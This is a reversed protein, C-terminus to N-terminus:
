DLLVVAKGTTRRGQLARHAEPLDEFSWRGGIVPRLRRAAVEGLIGRWRARLEQTLGPVLSLNFGALTRCRSVLSAPHIWGMALFERAARLWRVRRPGAAAAFGYLVLRGDEGLMRWARRTLRGGVSDLVVDLGGWSRAVEEWEGYGAAAEAGLELALRRKGETSAVALVRCGGARAMQLLMTGVGGAAATVLLREGRRARGVVRLAWDATLGTVALAAGEEWTVGGPLPAVRTAPVAVKEAHGGFIPVAAVAQGVELGSVGEGLAEVEGSVEMGPVFPPRPTNPYVGLRAMCDAFNLGIARVRVVVRGPGPLPDPVERRQLVEPPGPRPAVWARM